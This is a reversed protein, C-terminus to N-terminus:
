IRTVARRHCLWRHGLARSGRSESMRRTTCSSISITMLLPASTWMGPPNGKKGYTFWYAVAIRSGDIQEVVQLSIGQSDQEVQDWLGTFHRTVLLDGVFVDAAVSLMNLAVVSAILWRDPSM